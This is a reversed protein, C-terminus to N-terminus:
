MTGTNKEGYILITKILVSFLCLKYNNKIEVPENLQMLVFLLFYKTLFLERQLEFQLIRCM